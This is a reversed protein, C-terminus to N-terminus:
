EEKAQSLAQARLVRRLVKQVASRPLSTVLHIERPVKYRALYASAWERLAQPSLEAGPHLVLWAHVAEGRRPDPVGAVAVDLVAPHQRLVAEV